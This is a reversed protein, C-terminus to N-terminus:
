RSTPYKVDLQGLINNLFSINCVIKKKNPSNWLSIAYILNNLGNRAVWAYDGLKGIKKNLFNFVYSPRTNTCSMVFSYGMADLIL